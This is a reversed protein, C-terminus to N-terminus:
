QDQWSKKVTRLSNSSSCSTVGWDCYDIESEVPIQPAFAAYENPAQPSTVSNYTYLTTSSKGTVNDTTTVTTTRSLWQTSDTGNWTISYSFTQHLAPSTGDFSVTRSTVVPVGYQYM